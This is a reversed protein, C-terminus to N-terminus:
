ESCIVLIASHNGIGSIEVIRECGISHLQAKRSLSLRPLLKGTMRVWGRTLIEKKWGTWSSDASLIDHLAADPFFFM